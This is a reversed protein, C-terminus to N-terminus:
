NTYLILKKRTCFKNESVQDRSVKSVDSYLVLTPKKWQTSLFIRARRFDDVYNDRPKVPVMLPFAVVGGLDQKRRFPAMMESKERASWRSNLATLMLSVPFLDKFLGMSSRFLLFFADYELYKLFLNPSPFRSLDVEGDPLNNTNLIVLSGFWNPHKRLIHIGALFGWNHGVLTVNERM